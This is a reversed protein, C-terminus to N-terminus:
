FRRNAIIQYLLPLSIAIQRAPLEFAPLEFGSIMTTKAEPMRDLDSHEILRIVIDVIVSGLTKHKIIGLGHMEVLGTLAPPCSAIFRHNVAEVLCQDDAVLAAFQGQAQLYEVAALALATKGSGSPGEILIGFSGLAVATAHINM